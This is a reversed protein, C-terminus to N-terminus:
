GVDVHGPGVITQDAEDWADSEDIFPAAMGADELRKANKHFVVVEKEGPTVAKPDKSNYDPNPVTIHKSPDWHYDDHTKNTWKDFTVNCRTSNPVPQVSVVVDCLVTFGHLAYLIDLERPDVQLGLAAKVQVGLGVEVNGEYHMPYPGNTDTGPAKEFGPAKKIRPVIGGRHGGPPTKLSLFIPRATNKLFDKVEALGKVYDAKYNKLKGKGDLWHLLLLASLSDNNFKSNISNALRRYFAAVDPLSLPALVDDM